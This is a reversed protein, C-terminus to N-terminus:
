DFQGDSTADFRSPDHDQDALFRELSDAQLLFKKIESRPVIEGIKQKITCSYLGESDGISTSVGVFSGDDQLVPGGSLGHYFKKSLVWNSKSINFGPVDSIMHHGEVRTLISTVPFGFFHLSTGLNLEAPKKELDIYNLSKYNEVELLALDNSASIKRIITKKLLHGDHDVEIEYNNSIVKDFVVHFNTIIETPSIFFGTGIYASKERGLETVSIKVTSNASKIVTESKMKAQSSFVLSFILNFILFM